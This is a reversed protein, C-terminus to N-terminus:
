QIPVEISAPVVIGHRLLEGSPSIRLYHEVGGLKVEARYEEGGAISPGKLVELEEITGNPVTAAIRQSVAAPLGDSSLRCETYRLTADPLASVECRKGDPSEVEVEYVLGADAYNETEMSIVKSDPFQREALKRIAEPVRSVDQHYVSMKTITGNQDSHLEIKRTGHANKALSLLEHNLRGPGVASTACGMSCLMAALLPFSKMHGCYGPEGSGTM